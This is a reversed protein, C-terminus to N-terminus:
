LCPNQFARVSVADKEVTRTAKMLMVTLRFTVSLSCFRYDRVIISVAIVIIIIISHHVKKYNDM